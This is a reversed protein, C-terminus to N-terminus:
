ESEKQEIKGKPLGHKGTRRDQVLLIKQGNDKAIIAGCRTSSYYEIYLPYIRNQELQMEDPFYMNLTKAFKVEEYFMAEDNRLVALGHFRLYDFYANLISGM